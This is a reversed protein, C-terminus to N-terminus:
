KEAIRVRSGDKLGKPPNLVVKDGAQLGRTVQVLDALPPGKDIPVTQVQDGKLQYVLARGNKSVVASPDV